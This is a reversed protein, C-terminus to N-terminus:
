FDPGQRRKDGLRGKVFGRQIKGTFRRLTAVPSHRSGWYIDHYRKQLNHIILCFNTKFKKILFRGDRGTALGSSVAITPFQTHSFRYAM